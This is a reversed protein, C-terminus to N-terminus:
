LEKKLIIKTMMKCSIMPKSIKRNDKLWDYDLFKSTYNASTNCNQCQHSISKQGTNCKFQVARLWDSYLIKKM